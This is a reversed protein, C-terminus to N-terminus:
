PIAHEKEFQTRICEQCHITGHFSHQLEGVLQMTANEPGAYMYTASWTLRTGQLLSPLNDTCTARLKYAQFTICVYRCLVLKRCWGYLSTHYLFTNSGPTMTSLINVLEAHSLITIESWLCSPLVSCRSICTDVQSSTCPTTTNSQRAQSLGNGHSWM